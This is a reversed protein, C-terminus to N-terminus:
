TAPLLSNYLTPRLKARLEAVSVPKGVKNKSRDPWPRPHAKFKKGKRIANLAAQQQIDFVDLLFIGEYSLPYAWDAFSAHLWSSPDALLTEILDWAEDYRITTGIDNVSIHFKERFDRM